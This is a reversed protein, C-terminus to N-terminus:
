YYGDDSTIAGGGSASCDGSGHQDREEDAQLQLNKENQKEAGTSLTASTNMKSAAAGRFCSAGSHMVPKLAFSSTDIDQFFEDTESIDLNSLSFSIWNSQPSGFPAETFPNSPLRILDEM